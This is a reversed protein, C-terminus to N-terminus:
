KQNENKNDKNDKNNSEIKNDKNNNENKNQNIDNKQNIPFKDFILPVDAENEEEIEVIAQPRSQPSVMMNISPQRVITGVSMDTFKVAEKIQQKRYFLASTKILPGVFSLLVRLIEEDETDFVADGKQKNILQVVAIPKEKNQISTVDAFVPAVLMSRTRYGTQKDYSPNFKSDQYCDPINVVVGTKGVYGAIGQNLSLSIDVSADATILHLMEMQHNVTYLSCRDAELLESAAKNL